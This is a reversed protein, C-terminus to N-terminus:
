TVAVVALPAKIVLVSFSDRLPSVSVLIIAFVVFPEFLSKSLKVNSVTGGSISSLPEIVLHLALTEENPIIPSDVLAEESFALFLSYASNGPRIPLDVLALKLIVLFFTVAIIIETIPPLELSPPALVFLVAKSNEFIHGLILLLISTWNLESQPL